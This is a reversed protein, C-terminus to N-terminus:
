FLLRRGCTRCANQTETLCSTLPTYGSLRGM